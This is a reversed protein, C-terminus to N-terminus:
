RVKKFAKRIRRARKRRKFLSTNGGEKSSPGGGMNKSKHKCDSTLRHLDKRPKKRIRSPVRSSAGVSVIGGSSSITGEWSKRERGEHARGRYVFKERSCGVACDGSPRDRSKKCRDKKTYLKGQQFAVPKKERGETKEYGGRVL